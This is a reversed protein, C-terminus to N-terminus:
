GATAHGSCSGRADGAQSPDGGHTSGVHGPKSPIDKCNPRPKDHHPKPHHPKDHHPKDHHPKPAPKAAAVSVMHNVRNSMAGDSDKVQMSLVPRSGSKLYSCKLLGGGILPRSALRAGQGCLPYGAGFSMTDNRGPDTITFRFPLTQGKKAKSSGTLSLRPAVNKIQVTIRAGLDELSSVRTDSAQSLEQPVNVLASVQTTKPGDPFFCEFSNADPTDTYTANAGCSESIQSPADVDEVSYSYTRSDGENVVRASEEDLNIEPLDDVQNVTVTVTGVDCKIPSGDDCVTYDFADSGSYNPDPTYLVKGADGGTTIIEAAGHAPDTVSDVTLSQGSEDAPGPSDGDKVDIVVATDEDTTASDDDAFPPDNVPNVTITVTGEDCIEPEINNCSEYVFSDTGSFDAAPTYSFSGDENLDLTGNAPGTKLEAHLPRGNPDTDNGLVGPEAVVLTNDEDVSYADDEANPKDPSEVTPSSDQVLANARGAFTAVSALTLLIAVLLM